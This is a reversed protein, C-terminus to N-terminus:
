NRRKIKENRLLFITITVTSLAMMLSSIPYFIASISLSTLMINCIIFKYYIHGYSMGRNKAKKLSNIFIETSYKKNKILPYIFSFVSDIFYILGAIASAIFLEYSSSSIILVNIGIIFGFFIRGVNGFFIMINKLNFMLFGCSLGLVIASSTIVYEVNNIIDAKVMSIIICFISLHISELLSIGNIKGMYNFINIFYILFFIAIFFDLKPSFLGHFVLAPFILAEIALYSSVFHTVIKSLVPMSILSDAFTIISILFVAFVYFVHIEFNSIYLDSFTLLIIFGVSLVVGGYRLGKKVSKDSELEDDPLNSNIAPVLIKILLSSVVAGMVVLFAILFYINAYIIDFM